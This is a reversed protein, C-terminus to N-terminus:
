SGDPAIFRGDDVMDDMFLVKNLNFQEEHGYRGYIQLPPGCDRVKRGVVKIHLYPGFEYSNVVTMDAVVPKTKEALINIERYSDTITIAFFSIVSGIVFALLALGAHAKFENM